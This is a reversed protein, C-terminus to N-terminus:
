DASEALPPRAAGRLEKPRRYWLVIGLVYGAGAWAVGGIVVASQGLADIRRPGSLATRVARRMLPGLTRALYTQETDLSRADGLRRVFAKSIGENYCRHLLYRPTARAAPVFHEIEAGPVMVLRAEPAVRAARICFETEECGLPRSGLRGMAPDFLGARSFLEARFAMNCGLPNRVPGSRPLGAYSCGVVWLFEDPLWGPPEAEWAPVAHGGAGMVRPDEFASLLHALWTGRAVADDDIFVIVDGRSATIGTNRASALGRQGQSPMLEVSAPLRERLIRLLEDNHDVVVIVQEPAPEQALVSEVCAVAQELRARSFACVVVSTSHPANM